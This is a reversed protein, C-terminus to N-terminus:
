LSAMEVWRRACLPSLEGAWDLPEQEGFGTLHVRCGPCVVLALSSDGQRGAAGWLAAERESLRVTVWSVTAPALVSAAALGGTCFGREASPGSFVGGM